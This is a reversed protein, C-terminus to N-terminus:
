RVLGRPTAPKDPAYDGAVSASQDFFETMADLLVSAPIPGEADIVSLALAKRTEVWRSPDDDRVAMHTILQKVVTELVILRAPVDDIETM